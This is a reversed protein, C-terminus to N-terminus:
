PTLKKESTYLEKFKRKYLDQEKTLIEADEWQIAHCTTNAHVAIGYKQDDYRSGEQTRETSINELSRGTKGM